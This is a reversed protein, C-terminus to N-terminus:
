HLMGPLGGNHLCGSMTKRKTPQVVNNVIGNRDM